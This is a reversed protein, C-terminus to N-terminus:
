HFIAVSAATTIGCFNQGNKLLRVYGAEGWSTGWSNKLIWYDTTGETGWGVIGLAHNVSTSSCASDSYIGGSYLQFTPQSGDITVGGPGLQKVLQVVQAESTMDTYGTLAYVAKDPDYQCRGKTGTYPYDAAKMVHISQYDSIYQFAGNISGGNCGKDITDCDILNQVSFPILNGTKAADVSEISSIAAFAWDAGCQGQDQPDVVVPTTSNRWDFPDDANVPKVKIQVPNRAPTGYSSVLIRYEGPTLCAFKNLAVRFTSARNHERVFQKNALFIGLRFHYEAGVYLFNHQRMWSLFQSEDAPTYLSAACLAAFTFM